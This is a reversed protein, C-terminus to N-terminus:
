FPPQSQRVMCEGTLLQSCWIFRTFVHLILLKPFHECCGFHGIQAGRREGRCDQKGYLRRLEIESLAILDLDTYAAFRIDNIPLFSFYLTKFSTTSLTMMLFSFCLDPLLGTLHYSRREMSAFTITSFLDAASPCHTPFLQRIFEGLGM